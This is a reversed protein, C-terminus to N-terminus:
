SFTTAVHSNEFHCQSCFESIDNHCTVNFLNNSVRHFSLFVFLNCTPESPAAIFFSGKAVNNRLIDSRSCRSAGLVTVCFNSPKSARYLTYSRMGTAARCQQRCEFFLTFRSLPTGSNANSTASRARCRTDIAHMMSTEEHLTSTLKVTEGHSFHVKLPQAASKARGTNQYRSRERGPHLLAALQPKDNCNGTPLIWLCKFFLVVLWPRTPAVAATYLAAMKSYRVASTLVCTRILSHTLHFFPLCFSLTLSVFSSPTLLSIAVWVPVSVSVRNILNLSINRTYRDITCGPFYLDQCTIVYFFWSLFFTVFIM